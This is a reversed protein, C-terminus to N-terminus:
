TNAFTNTRLPSPMPLWIALWNYKPGHQNLALLVLPMPATINASYAVMEVLALM